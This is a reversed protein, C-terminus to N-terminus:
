NSVVLKSGSKVLLGAKRMRKILALKDQKSGDLVKCIQNASVGDIQSKVFVLVEQSKELYDETEEVASAQLGIAGTLAGVCRKIQIPAPSEADRFQFTCKCTDSEEEGEVGLICDRWAWLSGTGRMREFISKNANDPGRKALHHILIVSCNGVISIESFAKLVVAMEDSSNEKASHVARLSDFVVLKIGKSLVFEAIESADRPISAFQQTIHYISSVDTPQLGRARALSHIRRQLNRRSAEEEVLLCPAKYSAQYKGMCLGGTAVAIIIDLAIWTKGIGPHGAIFGKSRDVWLGEILWELPPEPESLLSQMSEPRLAERKNIPYRTVVDTILPAIEEQFGSKEAWPALLNLIETPALGARHLKGTMRLFSDHRNGETIETVVVSSKKASLRSVNKEFFERLFKPLVELPGQTPGYSWQRDPDNDNPVVVYGGEGRIDFGDIKGIESGTTKVNHMWDQWKYFYHCGRKSLSKWTTGFDANPFQKTWEQSDIDVVFIGNIPGTLAAVSAKPYRKLWEAVEEPTPKRSQYPKWSPLLTKKTDTYDKGYAPGKIPIVSWGLDIYSQLNV